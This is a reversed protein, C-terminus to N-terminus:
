PTDLITIMSNFLATQNDYNTNADTQQQAISLLAEHIQTRTLYQSSITEVQINDVDIKYKNIGDGYPGPM